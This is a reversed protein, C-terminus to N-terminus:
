MAFLDDSPSDKPDPKAGVGYYSIGQREVLWEGRLNDEACGVEGSQARFLLDFRGAQWGRKRAVATAATPARMEPARFV